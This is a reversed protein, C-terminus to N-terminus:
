NKILEFDNIRFDVTIFLNNFAMEIYKLELDILEIGYYGEYYKELMKILKFYEMQSYLKNM